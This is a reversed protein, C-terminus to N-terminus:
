MHQNYFRRKYKHSYPQRFGPAFHNNRYYRRGLQPTRYKHYTQRRRTQARVKYNSFPARGCPVKTWTKRQPVYVWEYCPEQNFDEPGGAPPIPPDMSTPHQPIKGKNLIDWWKFKTTRPERIAGAFRLDGMNGPLRQGWLFSKWYLRSHISEWMLRDQRQLEEIEQKRGPPTLQLDTQLPQYMNWDKNRYQYPMEEKSYRLDAYRDVFTSQPAGLPRSTDVVRPPQYVPRTVQRGVMRQSQQIEYTNKIFPFRPYITWAYDDYSFYRNWGLRRTNRALQHFGKWNYSQSRYSSRAGWRSPNRDSRSPHWRTGILRHKKVM